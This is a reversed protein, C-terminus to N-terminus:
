HVAGLFAESFGVTRQSNALQSRSRSGRDGGAKCGVGEQPGRVQWASDATANGLIARGKRRRDPGDQSRVARCSVEWVTRCHVRLEDGGAWALSVGKGFRWRSSQLLHQNCQELGPAFRM